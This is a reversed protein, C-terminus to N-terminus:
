YFYIKFVTSNNILYLVSSSMIQIDAWASPIGEIANIPSTSISDTKKRYQKSVTDCKKSCLNKHETM